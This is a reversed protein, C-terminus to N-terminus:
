PSFVYVLVQSDNMLECRRASQCAIYPELVVTVAKNPARADIQCQEVPAHGGRQHLVTCGVDKALPVAGVSRLIGPLL